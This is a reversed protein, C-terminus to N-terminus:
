RAQACFTNLERQTQEYAARKEIEERVYRQYIDEAARVEEL